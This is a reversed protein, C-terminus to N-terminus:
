PNGLLAQGWRGSPDESIGNARGRKLLAGTVAEVEM